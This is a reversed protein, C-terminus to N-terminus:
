NSWGKQYLKLILSHFTNYHFSKRIYGFQLIYFHAPFNTYILHDQTPILTQLHMSAIQYMVTTQQGVIKLMKILLCMLIYNYIIRTINQLISLKEIFFHLILDSSLVSKHFKQIFMEMFQHRQRHMQHFYQYSKM